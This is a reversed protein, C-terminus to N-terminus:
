EKPTEESKAPEEYKYDELKIEMYKKLKEWEKALDGKPLSVQYKDFFITQIDDPQLMQQSMQKINSEKSSLTKSEKPNAIDSASSIESDTINAIDGMYWNYIRNEYEHATAPDVDAINKISVWLGEKPPNKGHKEYIKKWFDVNMIAQTKLKKLIQDNEPYLLNEGLKTINYIGRGELIGYALMSNIKKFLTPETGHKYGLLDSLTKSQIQDTRSAEYIKRLTGELLEDLRMEPILFSGIKM